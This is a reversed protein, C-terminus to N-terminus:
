HGTVICTKQCAKRLDNRKQARLLPTLFCPHIIRSVTPVRVRVM